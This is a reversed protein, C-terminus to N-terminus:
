QTRSNTPAAGTRGPQGAAVFSHAELVGLGLVTPISMRYLALIRTGAVPAFAVEIDRAATLYRIAPRNPRHGSIPRYAVGCVVVPGVYGKESRVQEMRKFSLVLDFRGRGDFIPLTRHCAEPNLPEGGGNMAILAGTMPDTVGRRHAETVPIRDPVPPLPPEAVVDKVTGASLAMRIEEAKKDSIVNSAFSAAILAGPKVAGRAAASGHGSSFVALLGSTRGTAIASYQDDAIDVQWTGRGIPIGALTATYHAELRAEARVGRSADAALAALVMMAGVPAGMLRLPFSRM